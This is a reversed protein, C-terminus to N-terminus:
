PEMELIHARFNECLFGGGKQFQIWGIHPFNITMVRKAGGRLVMYGQGVVGMLERM